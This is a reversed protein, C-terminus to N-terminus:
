TLIIEFALVVAQEGTRGPQPNNRKDKVFEDFAKRPIVGPIVGSAVCYFLCQCCLYLDFLRGEQEDESEKTDM